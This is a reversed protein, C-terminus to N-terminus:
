KEGFWTYDRYSKNWTENVFAFYLNKGADMEGGARRSFTDPLLESFNFCVKENM